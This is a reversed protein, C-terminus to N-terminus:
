MNVCKVERLCFVAADPASPCDHMTQRRPGRRSANRSRRRPLAGRVAEARAHKKVSQSKVNLRSKKAAPPPSSIAFNLMMGDSDGGDEAM